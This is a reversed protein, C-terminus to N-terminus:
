EIPSSVDPRTRPVSPESVMTTDALRGLSVSTFQSGAGLPAKLRTSRTYSGVGCTRSPEQDGGTIRAILQLAITAGLKHM